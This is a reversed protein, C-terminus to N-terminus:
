RRIQGLIDQQVTWIPTDAELEIKSVETVIMKTLPIIDSILADDSEALKSATQIPKLLAILQPLTDWDKKEM